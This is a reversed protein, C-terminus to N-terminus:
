EYGTNVDGQAPGFTFTGAIGPGGAAVCTAGVCLSYPGDATVEPKQPATTDIKFYCWGTTTVTSHSELYSSDDYYSRAFVALRYLPGEDLTIPVTDTVTTGSTVYGTLPRVPETPVTWTGDSLQEQVYFHARMSAGSGGGPVVAVKATFDPTLDRIVEPDSASTECSAATGAVLGASTPVAPQGVYTVSLAADDRFRKWDSTATEDRAKILLTLRDFQGAAFDAVQATLRSDHFEIPAAPQSPSCESGRGASVDRSAVTGLNNPRGAWTTASTINSTRELDVWAADCTFSWSETDRFTADLVKKGVLTSPSFQYYMRETYGPGCYIGNYSSCHGVGKGENDSGNDFDYDSYGDSRVQIRATQSLGVSPDIYLPFASSDPNALMDPDPVVSLSDAGVQVPLVTSTDGEGPGSPPTTPASAAPGAQARSGLTRGATGAPATGAGQSDWMLAPPASFVPSASDDDVATMGGGAAPRVSLGDSELSFTVKALAPNAAAQPTKVVLLEGFGETTATMRLDVGPLVDAYTASAGDLTPTPLATPWGLRLSRNGQSISVLGSGDGGGSFSLGMVAGKPGVSGDPKAELTADPAAWSGDTAKVRVPVASQEVTFTTGDPNAYTTAYPTQEGTVEIREGAAVAKQSAQAEASLPAKPTDSRAPTAAGGMVPLVTLLSAAALGAVVGRVRARRVGFLRRAGGREM